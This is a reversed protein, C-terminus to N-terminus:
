DTSYHKLGLMQACALGIFRPNNSLYRRWLRRPESMLRFLWELGSRQM